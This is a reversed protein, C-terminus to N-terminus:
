RDSAVLYNLSFIRSISFFYILFISLLTADDDEMVNSSFCNLLAIKQEVDCNLRCCSEDGHCLQLKKASHPSLSIITISQDHFSSTVEAFVRALNIPAM